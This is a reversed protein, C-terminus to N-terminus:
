IFNFYYIFEFIKKFHTKFKSSDYALGKENINNFEFTLAKTIITEDDNPQEPKYDAFTVLNHVTEYDIVVRSCNNSDVLEFLIDLVNRSKM